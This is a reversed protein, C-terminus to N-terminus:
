DELRSKHSLLRRVLNVLVDVGLEDEVVRGGLADGDMERSPAPEVEDDAVHKSGHDMVFGPRRAVGVNVAELVDRVYHGYIRGSSAPDWHM